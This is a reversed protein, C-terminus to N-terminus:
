SWVACPGPIAGAGSSAQIPHSESLVTVGSGGESSIDQPIASKWTSVFTAMNSMCRGLLYALYIPLKSLRCNM